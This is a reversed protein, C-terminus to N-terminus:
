LKGNKLPSLLIGYALNSHGLVTSLLANLFICSRSLAVMELPSYHFLSSLTMM